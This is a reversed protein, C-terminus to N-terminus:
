LNKPSRHFGKKQGSQKFKEPGILSPEPLSFRWPLVLYACISSLLAWTYPRSNSAWGQIHRLIELQVMLTHIGHESPVLWSWAPSGHLKSGSLSERMVPRSNWPFTGLSSHLCLRGVTMAQQGEQSTVLPLSVPPLYSVGRLSHGWAAKM